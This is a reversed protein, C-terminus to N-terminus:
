AGRRSIELEEGSLAKDGLTLYRENQDDALSISRNDDHYDHPCLLRIHLHAVLSLPHFLTKV